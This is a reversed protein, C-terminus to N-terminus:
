QPRWAVRRPSNSQPRNCSRDKAGSSSKWGWRPLRGPSHRELNHIMRIGYADLDCGAAVPLALDALFRILRTSPNGENWVCLWRDTIDAKLCVQEFPESNEM